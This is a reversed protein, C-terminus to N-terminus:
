FTVIYKSYDIKDKKSYKSKEKSLSISNGSTIMDIPILYM